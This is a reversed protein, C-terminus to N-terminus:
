LGGMTTRRLRRIAAQAKKYDRAAALQYFEIAKAIDPEVGDGSEYCAGLNYYNRGSDDGREIAEKILRVAEKPDRAASDGCLRCYGLSGLAEADGHEASRQYWEAAKKVNFVTGDGQAYADGLSKEALADGSKAAKFLSDFSEMSAYKM